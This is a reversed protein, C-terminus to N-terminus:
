RKYKWIFGKYTESEGRCCKAISSKTYGTCKVAENLSKFDGVVKEDLDKQLVGKSCTFTRREKVTGYMNNYTNTCWELNEVNNNKKNEDKHNIQPLNNPNPIFCEAVARHISLPFTTGRICLKVQLYGRKTMYPSLIRESLRNKRIISKIRGKDSIQYHGEFGRIDKWTEEREM